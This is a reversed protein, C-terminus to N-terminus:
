KDKIEDLTKKAEAAAKTDPYEDIIKQLKTRALSYSQSAVYSKALSLARNAQDDKSVVAAPRSAATPAPQTAAAAVAGRTPGQDLYQIAEDFWDGTYTSWLNCKPGDVPLVKVYKFRASLYGDRIAADHLRQITDEQGTDKIFFYRLNKALAFSEDRPRPYTRPTEHNSKPDRIKTFWIPETNMLVGTFQDPYYFAVGGEPSKWTTIFAYLRRESIPWIKQANYVADILEGIREQAPQDDGGNMPGIWILHYKELIPVQAKPTFGHGGAFPLVDILGYKGDDGPASPVYVYFDQKSLDYDAATPDPKSGMRKAMETLTSLPSRETLKLHFEGTKGVVKDPTLPEDARVSTTFLLVIVLCLIRKM